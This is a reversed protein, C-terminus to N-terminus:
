TSVDPGVLNPKNYIRPENLRVGQTNFFIPQGGGSSSFDEQELTAFYQADYAAGIAAVHPSNAHGCFLSDNLPPDVSEYMTYVQNFIQWKMAPPEPGEILGIALQNNEGELFQFVEIPDGGINDDRGSMNEQYEGDIAIFVDLNSDCGIQM